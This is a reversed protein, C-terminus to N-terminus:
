VLHARRRMSVGSAQRIREQMAGLLIPNESRDTSM